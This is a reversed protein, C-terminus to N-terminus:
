CKPFRGLIHLLLCKLGMRWSEEQCTFIEVNHCAILHWCSNFFCLICQNKIRFNNYPLLVAKSEYYTQNIHILKERWFVNWNISPSSVRLHIRHPVFQVTLTEVSSNVLIHFDVSYIGQYFVHKNNAINIPQKCHALYNRSLM